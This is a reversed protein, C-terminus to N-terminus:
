QQASELASPEAATSRFAEAISHDQWLVEIAKGVNEDLIVDRDLKGVYDRLYRYYDIIYSDIQINSMDMSGILAKLHALVCQHINYRYDVLEDRTLGKENDNKLQKVVEEMSFQGLPLVNYQQKRIRYDEELARDIAESRNKAEADQPFLVQFQLKMPTDNNEQQYLSHLQKLMSGIIDVIANVINIIAIFIGLLIVM